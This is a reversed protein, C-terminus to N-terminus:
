RFYNIFKVRVKELVCIYSVVNNLRIGIGFKNIVNLKFYKYRKSMNVDEGINRIIM